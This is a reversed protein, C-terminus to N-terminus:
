QAKIGAAHVATAVRAVEGKAYEFEVPGAGVPEIGSTTFLRIADSEQVIGAIETAIKQIVAASTGARVFIGIMPAFDYGAILDAV